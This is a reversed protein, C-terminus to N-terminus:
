RGLLVSYFLWAFCSDAGWMFLALVGVFLFVIGTLQWTEKKTPWVVKQAEKGADRAYAVFRRGIQTFWIVGCAAGMGLLVSLPKAMEFSPPMLYFGAVGALVLLISFLLKFKDPTTM